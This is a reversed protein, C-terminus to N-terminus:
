NSGENLDSLMVTENDLYVTDGIIEKVSQIKGDRFVALVEEFNAKLDEKKIYLLMGFEDILIARGEQYDELIFYLHHQTQFLLSGIPYVRLGLIRMIFHAIAKIIRM